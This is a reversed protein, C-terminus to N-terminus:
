VDRWAAAASVPSGDARRPWPPRGREAGARHSTRCRGPRAEEEVAQPKQAEVALRLLIQARRHQPGPLCHGGVPGEAQQTPQERQQPRRKRPRPKEDPEVPAKRGRCVPRRCSAQSPSPDHSTAGVAGRRRPARTVGAGGAQLRGAAARASAQPGPRRGIPGLIAYGRLTGGLATSGCGASTPM